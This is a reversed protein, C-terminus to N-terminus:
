NKKEKGNMWDNIKRNKEIQLHLAWWRRRAAMSTFTRHKTLERLEKDSIKKQM